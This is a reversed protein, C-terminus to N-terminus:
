DRGRPKRPAGPNGGPGKRPGKGPPRDGRPREGGPRPGKGQPRDGGSRSGRSEDRGKREGYPRDGSRETRRFPRDGGREDRSFRTDGDRREFRKEGGREERRPGRGEFRRAGEGDRGEPRRGEFKREGRPAFGREGDRKEGRKGFAREGRERSPRREDRGFEAGERPKRRVPRDGGREAKFRRANRSEPEAKPETSIVREVVVARGRRDATAGREIKVREKKLREDREARMTTVHKRSGPKPRETKKEVAEEDREFRRGRAPREEDRSFRERKEFPRDRGSREDRGGREQRGRPPRDPREERGRPARAPRDESEKAPAEFDAASQAILTPGLQDRLVRTKVEEVAGEAIDGLQFPGYSVRILRNVDLGLSGLVRRVERNKGERLSLTLWSNAGQVRDLKAEIPAYDVGEVHVGKALTDLAAQDTSGHARVRYRRLWGTQPLELTRALGGDNTLMLLGETNIDLRGVTMLRPLEPHRQALYDFITERGEPDRDTTVLGRPKHFLFLRTRERAALPRGDVTIRDSSTVNFAPSSLVKGNVAVRGEAIWQEADRRSCAGARAMAKAIREGEQAKPPPGPKRDRAGAGPKRGGPKGGPKRAGFDKGGGSKFPRGGQRKDRDTM